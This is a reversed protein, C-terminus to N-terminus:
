DAPGVARVEPQACRHPGAVRLAPGGDRGRDLGPGDPDIGMLRGHGALREAPQLPAADPDLAPGPAQLREGVHLDDVDPVAGSASGPAARISSRLSPRAMILVRRDTM